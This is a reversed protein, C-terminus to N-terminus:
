PAQNESKAVSKLECGPCDPVYANGRYDLEKLGAHSTYYGRIAEHRALDYFKRLASNEAATSAAHVLETQQVESLELFLKGFRERSAQELGAMGSRMAVDPDDSELERVASEGYYALALAHHLANLQGAAERVGKASYLRLDFWRATEPLAAPDVKGLLVEIFRTVVRFEDATFFQPAFAGSIPRAYETERGPMGSHLKETGSLARALHDTSPEYLGPPLQMAGPQQAAPLITATEPVLGSAGLLAVVEGLRLLWERRTLEEIKENL